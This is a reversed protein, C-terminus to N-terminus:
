RSNLYTQLILAAAITDVLKKNRRDTKNYGADLLTQRAMRSTLREDIRVVPIDPFNEHFRTEFTNVLPTADTEQGSLSMPHGLVVLEVPEKSFYAKLWEFVADSDVTTLPQAIIHLPDTVALGVRRKGYDVALIRGMNCFYTNRRM